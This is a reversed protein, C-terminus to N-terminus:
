TDRNKGGSTLAAWHVRTIVLPRVLSVIHMGKQGPDGGGGEVLVENVNSNENFINNISGHLGDLSVVGEPERGFMAMATRM